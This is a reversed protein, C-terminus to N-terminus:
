LERRRENLDRCIVTINDKGGSDCALKILVPGTQEFQEEHILEFRNTMSENYIINIKYFVPRHCMLNISIM